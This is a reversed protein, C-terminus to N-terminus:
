FSEYSAVCTGLVATAVGLLAAAVFAWHAARRLADREGTTCRRSTAAAYTVAGAWALTLAGFALHEKREFLYAIAPAQAFLRPRIRERYTPYLAAGLAGALTVLGVTLGVSLHARRQRERLLVAPHVLAIAALWGLHGHVHEAVRALDVRPADSADLAALLDGACSADFLIGLAAM